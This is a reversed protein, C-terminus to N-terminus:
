VVSGSTGAGGGFGAVGSVGCSPEEPEIHRFGAARAGPEGCFIGSVGHKQTDIPTCNQLLTCTSARFIFIMTDTFMPRIRFGIFINAFVATDVM